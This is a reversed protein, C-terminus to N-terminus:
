CILLDEVENKEKFITTKIMGPAINQIKPVSPCFEELPQSEQSSKICSPLRLKLECDFLESLVEKKMEDVFCHDFTDFKVESNEQKFKQEEEILSKRKNEFNQVQASKRCNENRLIENPDVAFYEFYNTFGMSSFLDLSEKSYNGSKGSIQWSTNRLKQEHIEHLQHREPTNTVIITETHTPTAILEGEYLKTSADYHTVTVKTGAPLTAAWSSIDSSKV